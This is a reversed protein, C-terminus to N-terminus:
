PLQLILEEAKASRPVIRCKFPNPPSTLASAKPKGQTIDISEETVRSIQFVSLTMAIALWVTADSFQIGPCFAEHCAIHHQSRRGFGFACTRPNREPTKGNIGLFREPSFIEPNTYVQPDHLMQRGTRINPVIISQFTIDGTHIQKRQENLVVPSWRYIESLLAFVYPLRDRDDLTPLCNGGTVSDIEEQARSQIEPFLTMALYFTSLASFLSSAIWKLDDKELETMSTNQMNKSVVSPQATGRAMELISFQFPIEANEHVSNKVESAVKKFGAGPFWAPVYKLLPIFDVTYLGPEKLRKFNRMASNALAIIPDDKERAEYGYVIRVTIAGASHRVHQQLNDPDRLTARLFKRTESEFLSNFKELSERTGIANHMYKRSERWRSGYALIGTWKNFGALEGAMQLVPRDSYIAGKRDLMENAVEANSLIILPQGAANAHVISGYMRAWKTYTKTFDDKLNPIDFLNGIIPWGKPGPPLPPTAKKTIGRLILLFIVLLSLDTGTVQLSIPM